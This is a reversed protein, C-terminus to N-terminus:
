GEGHHFGEDDDFEHNRYYRFIYGIINISDTASAQVYLTKDSVPNGPLVLALGMKSKIPTIIIEDISDLDSVSTDPDQFSM